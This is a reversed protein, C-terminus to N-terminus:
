VRITQLKALGARVEAIERSQAKQERHCRPRVACRRRPGVSGPPRCEERGRLSWSRTWRVPNPRPNFKKTNRPMPTEKPQPQVPVPAHKAEPAKAETRQVEADITRIPMLVHISAKDDKSLRGLLPSV